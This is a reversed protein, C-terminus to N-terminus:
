ARRKMDVIEGRAEHLALERIRQGPGPRGLHYGQGENCGWARLLEAQHANEIGEANTRMRMGACLDLVARVIAISTPDTEIQSVFMRDIKVKDFRFRRLYGLSSYGTGFDDMAIRVGLRRLRDLTALTERTDRLILGETLELELRQPTLGSEALAAEVSEVFSEGRFQAPSVNVAIGIREPWRAAECCADLLVTAGLERILGLDEALPIFRDPPVPGHGRRNWRLLAEAGTLAGTALDFLPQYSLQLEREAIAVALDAKLAREAAIEAHMGPDFIRYTGRGAGKAEYLAVDANMLMDSASYPRGPESVSVGISLGTDVWMQASVQVPRSVLGILRECLDRVVDPSAAAPLLIAFEDGGLRALVDTYGVSERLRGAITKLLDDGTAHGFTDNVDKFHDLDVYLVAVSTTGRAAEALAAELEDQLVSRNPLGTLVDHVALYAAREVAEDLMRLPVLRLGVLVVLGLLFSGSAVFATAEITGQLSRTVEIRGLGNSFSASASVSPWPTPIAAGIELLVRGESDFCRLRLDKHLHADPGIAQVGAVLPGGALANWFDPNQSAEVAAEGAHLRADIELEGALRGYAAYAYALPLSLAILIASFAALATVIRTVALRRDGALAGRVPRRRDESRRTDQSRSM